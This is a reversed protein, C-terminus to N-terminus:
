LKALVEKNLIDLKDYEKDYAAKVNELCSTAMRQCAQLTSSGVHPTLLVNDLSRIDKDPDVPKYPESEFVDLGAGAINEKVLSDYLANEDVISGRSTNILFADRKMNSLFSSNVFHRTAEIAPIHLSVFDTAGLEKNLDDAIREMGWDQRLQEADLKCVDYGVVNMGFGMSAIKAVKCGINGCGIVLLTRGKLEFGLSPQWQKSKMNADHGAIQRALSGILFIAHEAVSDDLVGPTNTAILSAETAKQKDVGDHGVGFRAIIGGKPLVTYLKDSYNEVGLIVGFAKNDAVAKSIADEELGVPMCEFECSSKFIGEAKFYEKETICVVRKM